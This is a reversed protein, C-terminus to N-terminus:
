LWRRVHACYIQFTEGHQSLLYSEELRIQIQMLVFGLALAVLSLANPLVLFFGVLSIAMGLFIPNRSYGFVGEMVLPAASQSSEGQPIGIRWSAGMQKQAIVIWILSVVLLAWGLVWARPTQLWTMPALYQAVIEAGFANVVVALIVLIISAAFARGVYGYADDKRTLVLPNIGTQRWVSWSRWFFAAWLYLILYGLLLFANLSSM